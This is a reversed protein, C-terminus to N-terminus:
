GQPANIWDSNKSRQGTVASQEEMKSMRIRRSRRQDSLKRGTLYNRSFGTTEMGKQRQDVNQIWKWWKGRRRDCESGWKAVLQHIRSSRFMDYEAETQESERWISDRAMPRCSLSPTAMWRRKL